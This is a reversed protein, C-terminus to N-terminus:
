TARSSYLIYKEFVPSRELFCLMGQVVDYSNLTPINSGIYLTGERSPKFVLYVTKNMPFGPLKPLTINVLGLVVFASGDAGIESVTTRKEMIGKSIDELRKLRRSEAERDLLIERISVPRMMEDIMGSTENLLAVVEFYRFTELDFIHIQDTFVEVTKGDIKYRRSIYRNISKIYGVSGIRAKIFEFFETVNALIVHVPFQPDKAKAADLIPTFLGLSRMIRVYTYAKLVPDCDYGSLMKILDIGYRMGYRAVVSYYLIYIFNSSFLFEARDSGLNRFIHNILEERRHYQLNYQGAPNGLIYFIVQRYRGTMVDHLESDTSQNSLYGLYIDHALKGALFLKEDDGRVARLQVYAVITEIYLYDFYVEMGPTVRSRLAAHVDPKLLREIWKNISYAHGDTGFSEFVNVSHALVAMTAANIEAPKDLEFKAYLKPKLSGFLEPNREDEDLDFVLSWHHSFASIPSDEGSMVMRLTGWLIGFLNMTVYDDSRDSLFRALSLERLDILDARGDIVTKLLLHNLTRAASVPDEYGIGMAELMEVHMQKRGMSEKLVDDKEIEDGLLERMASKSEPADMSNSVYMQTIIKSLELANGSIRNLLQVNQELRKFFDEEGSDELMESKLERYHKIARPFVILPANSQDFLLGCSACTLSPDKLFSHGEQETSGCNSCRVEMEPLPNEVLPGLNEMSLSKSAIFRWAAGCTQCGVQGFDLLQLLNERRGCYPCSELTAIM